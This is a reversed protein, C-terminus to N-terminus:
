IRYLINDCVGDGMAQMKMSVTMFGCCFIYWSISVM